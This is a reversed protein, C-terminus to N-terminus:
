YKNNTMKYTNERKTNFKKKNKLEFNKENLTLKFIM